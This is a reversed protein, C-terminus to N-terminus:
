NRQVFLLGSKDTKIQWDASHGDFVEKFGGMNSREDAILAWGGPVVCNILRKLATLRPAEPLMHLTRDILLVDFSGMPEYTSIDAVIGEIPLDEKKAAANLDRIGMPSLDVGIVRHGARAIFIADRGQGCGIDLVRLQEDKFAAFFHVFAKTPAGLADPQAGYLEDYNYAM